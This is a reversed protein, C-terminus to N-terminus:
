LLRQLTLGQFMTHILKIPRVAKSLLKSARQTTRGTLTLMGSPSDIVGADSFSINSLTVPVRCAVSTSSWTPVAVVPIANTVTVIADDSVAENQGDDATLTVKYTGNDNCTISTDM